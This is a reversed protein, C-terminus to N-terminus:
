LYALIRKLGTPMQSASGDSIMHLLYYGDSHMKNFKSGCLLKSTVDICEQDMGQGIASTGICDICTRELLAPINMVIVNNEISVTASAPRVTGWALQPTPIGRLVICRLEVPTGIIVSQAGNHSGSIM